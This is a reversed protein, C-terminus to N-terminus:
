KGVKGYEVGDPDIIILWDKDLSKSSYARNRSL